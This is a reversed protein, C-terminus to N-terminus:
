EISIGVELPSPSEITSLVWWEEILGKALHSFSSYRAKPSKSPMRQEFRRLNMESRLAYEIVRISASMSVRELNVATPNLGIIRSVRLSPSGFASPRNM